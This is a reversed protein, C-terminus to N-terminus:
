QLLPLLESWGESATKPLIRVEIGLERAIYDNRWSDGFYLIEQPSVGVQELVERYFGLNPKCAHLIGSHTKYSFVSPDIGAWRIRLDVCEEPWLPDTVLCVKKGQELFAQVVERAGEMPYTYKGYRAYDERYFKWLRAESEERSESSHFTIEDLLREYNTKGSATSNEFMARLCLKMKSATNRIGFVPIFRRIAAKSTKSIFRFTYTDLLTGDLDFFVTEKRLYEDMKKPNLFMFNRKMVPETRGSILRNQRLKMRNIKIDSGQSKRISVFLLYSM